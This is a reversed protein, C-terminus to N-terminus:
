SCLDWFTAVNFAEIGDFRLSDILLLRGPASPDGYCDGRTVGRADGVAFCTTYIRLFLNWGRM